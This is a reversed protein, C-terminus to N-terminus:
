QKTEESIIMPYPNLFLNDKDREGSGPEIIMNKYSLTLWQEM